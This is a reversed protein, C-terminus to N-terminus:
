VPNGHVDIRLPSQHDRLMRDGHRQYKRTYIAAPTLECAEIPWQAQRDRYNMVSLNMKSAERNVCHGYANWGPLALSGFPRGSSNISASLRKRHDKWPKTGLAFNDPTRIQQDINVRCWPVSVSRGDRDVDGLDFGMADLFTNGPKFVGSRTEKGKIKMVRMKDHAHLDHASQCATQLIFDDTWLPKIRQKPLPM